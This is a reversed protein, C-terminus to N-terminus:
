LGVRGMWRGRPIPEFGAAYIANNWSGFLKQVTTSTPHGPGAKAWEIASPPKGHDQNWQWMADLVSSPTHVVPRGRGRSM